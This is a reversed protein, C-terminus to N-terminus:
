PVRAGGHRPTAGTDGRDFASGSRGGVDRRNQGPRNTRGGPCDRVGRFRLDGRRDGFTRPAKASAGAGRQPRRDHLRGFAFASLAPRGVPYFGGETQGFRWPFDGTDRGGAAGGSVIGTGGVALGGAGGVVGVARVPGDASGRADRSPGPTARASSVRCVGAQPWRVRVRAARDVSRRGPRGAVACGVSEGAASVAGIGTVVVPTEEILRALKLTSM